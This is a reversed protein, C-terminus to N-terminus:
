LELAQAMVERAGNQCMEQEVAGRSAVLARLRSSEVRELDSVEREDIRRLQPLWRLLQVRLNARGRCIPNESIALDKLRTLKKFADLERPHKM